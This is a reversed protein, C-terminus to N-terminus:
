HGSDHRLPEGRERQALFDALSPAQALAEDWGESTIDVMVVPPGPPEPRRLDVGFRERGGDTGFILLGPHDEIMETSEVLTAVDYVWVFVKGYWRQFGNEAALLERLAAPFRVGLRAEAAALEAESAGPV